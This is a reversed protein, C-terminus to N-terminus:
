QFNKDLNKEWKLLLAQRKQLYYNRLKSISTFQYIAILWPVKFLWVMLLVNGVEFHRWLGALIIFYGITLAWYKDLSRNFWDPYTKKSTAFHLGTLLQMLGVGIQVLGFWVWSSHDIGTIFLLMFLLAMGGLWQSVSIYEDYSKMSKKNEINKSLEM